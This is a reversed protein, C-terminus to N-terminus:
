GTAFAPAFAQWLVGIGGVMASLAAVHDALSASSTRRARRSAVLFLAGAGLGCIVSLALSAAQWEATDAARTQAALSVFAYVGLFHLAWILLGGLIYLWSRV